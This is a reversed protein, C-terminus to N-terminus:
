ARAREDARNQEGYRQAVGRAAAACVQDWPLDDDLAQTFLREGYPADGAAYAQAIADLLSLTQTFAASSATQTTESLTSDTSSPATLPTASLDPAPASKIM